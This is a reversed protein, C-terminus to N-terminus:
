EDRLVVYTDEIYKAYDKLENVYFCRKCELVEWENSQTESNYTPEIIEVHVDIPRYSDEGVLESIEDWTYKYQTYEYVPDGLEDYDKLEIHVVTIGEPLLYAVLSGNIKEYDETDPYVLGAEPYLGYYMNQVDGQFGPGEELFRKLKENIFNRIENKM